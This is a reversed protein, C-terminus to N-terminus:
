GEFEIVTEVPYKLMHLEDVTMLGEFLIKYMSHFKGNIKIKYTGVCPSNDQVTMIGRDVIIEISPYIPNNCIPIEWLKPTAKWLEYDGIYYRLSSIDEPYTGNENFRSGPGVYVEKFKMFTLINRYEMEHPEVHTVQKDMMDAYVEAYNDDGIAVHKNLIYEMEVDNCGALLLLLLFSLIKKM